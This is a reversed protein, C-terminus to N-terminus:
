ELSTRKWWKRPVIQDYGKDLVDFLLDVEKSEEHSPFHKRTIGFQMEAEVVFAECQELANTVLTMEAYSYKSDDRLNDLQLHALRQNRIDRFASAIGVKAAELKEAYLGPDAAGEKFSDFRNLTFTDNGCISKRDVLRALRITMEDLLSDQITASLVGAVRNLADVRAEDKCFMEVYYNKILEILFLEDLLCAVLFGIESGDGYREECEKFLSSQM